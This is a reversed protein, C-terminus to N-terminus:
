QFSQLSTSSPQLSLVEATSYLEQVLTTGRTRVCNHMCALGVASFPVVKRLVILM